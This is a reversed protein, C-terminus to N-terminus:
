GSVLMMVILRPTSEAHVFLSTDSNTQHTSGYCFFCTNGVAYCTSITLSMALTCIAFPERRRKVVIIFALLSAIGLFYNMAAWAIDYRMILLESLSLNWKGQYSMISESLTLDVQVEFPGSRFTQLIGHSSDLSCVIKQPLRKSICCAPPLSFCISFANWNLDKVIPFDM